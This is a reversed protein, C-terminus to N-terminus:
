AAPRTLLANVVKHQTPTSADGSSQGSQFPCHGFASFMEREIPELALEVFRQVRRSLRELRIRRGIAVFGPDASTQRVQM